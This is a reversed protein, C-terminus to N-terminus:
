ATPLWAPRTAEFTTIASEARLTIGIDDLGQLFRERVSDELPFDV